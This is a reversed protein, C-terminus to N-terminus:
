LLAAPPVDAVVRDAGTARMRAALGAVLGPDAWLEALRRLTAELDHTIGDSQSVGVDMRVPEVRWREAPGLFGAFIPEPVMSWFTVRAGPERELLRQAVAMQRAGHGFGHDTIAFLVHMVRSRRTDM